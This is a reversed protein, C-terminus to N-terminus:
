RFHKEVFEQEQETSMLGTARGVTGDQWDWITNHVHVANAFDGQKWDTLASEYFDAHEYHTQNAKVITLLNNINDTTMEVAGRKKSAVIKQHTMQHLYIQLQGEDMDAEVNKATSKETTNAETGSDQRGEIDEAVETIEGDSSSHQMVFYYGAAALLALVGFSVGITKLISKM